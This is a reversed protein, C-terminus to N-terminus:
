QWKEGGFLKIINLIQGVCRDINKLTKDSSMAEEVSTIKDLIPFFADIGYDNVVVAENEVIGSIAIVKKDYKKSLKAIGVPTKGMITQSDIRGEGTIVLDSEKIYKEAEILKLVLSIGPELVANLYNKFAYGLGGAAGVGKYEDDADEIVEKTKEHYKKLLSDLVVVDDKGAGKQPGFVFSSGREGTLPNDVDCAINFSCEKLREDMNSIDIKSLNEFGIPGDKVENGEEDLFKVGLSKLMGSGGDNTASGGIGIIFSRIGRDLADKIMDGVGYTSAVYPNLEGKILNIGSSQSMEMIALKKDSIIVYKAEHDRMLPDSVKTFVEKAGELERLSDVTGEGGDAVPMVKVNFKPYKKLVTKKVQNGAELSSVSGKFSDILVVINM